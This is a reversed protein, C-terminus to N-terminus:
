EKKMSSMIINAQRFECCKFGKKKKRKKKSITNFKLIQWKDAILWLMFIIIAMGM